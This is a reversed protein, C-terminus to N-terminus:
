RTVGMAAIFRTPEVGYALSGHGPPEGPEDSGASASATSRTTSRHRKTRRATAKRGDRAPASMRKTAFHLSRSRAASLRIRLRAQRNLAWVYTVSGNEDAFATTRRTAESFLAAAKEADGNATVNAQLLLAALPGSVTRAGPPAGSTSDM